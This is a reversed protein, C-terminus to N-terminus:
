IIRKNEFQAEAQLFWGRSFEKRAMFWGQLGRPDHSRCWVIQIKM